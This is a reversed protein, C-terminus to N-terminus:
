IGYGTRHLDITWQQLIIDIQSKMGFLVGCTNVSALHIFSGDHIPYTPDNVMAAFVTKTLEKQVDDVINKITEENHADFVLCTGFGQTTTNEWKDYAKSMEDTFSPLAAALVSSAHAAQAMGRGPTMSALDSRMLIIQVPYDETKM